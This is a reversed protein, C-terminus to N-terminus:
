FKSKLNHLILKVFVAETTNPQEHFTNYRTLPFLKINTKRSPLPYSTQPVSKSNQLTDIKKNKLKYLRLFLFIRIVGRYQVMYM